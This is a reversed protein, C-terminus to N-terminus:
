SGIIIVLLLCPSRQLVSRGTSGLTVFVVEFYSYALRRIFYGCACACRPLVVATRVVRMAQHQANNLEEPGYGEETKACGFLCRVWSKAESFQDENKYVTNQFMAYKVRSCGRESRFFCPSVLEDGPLQVSTRGSSFSRRTTSACNTNTSGIFFILLTKRKKTGFFNRNKNVEGWSGQTIMLGSRPQRRVRNCVANDACLTRPVLNRTSNGIHAFFTLFYPYCCVFLEAATSSIEVHSWQSM